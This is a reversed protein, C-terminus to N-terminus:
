WYGGPKFADYIKGLFVDMGYERIFEDAVEVVAPRYFVVGEHESADERHLARLNRARWM